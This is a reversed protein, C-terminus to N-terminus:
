LDEIAERSAASLKELPYEISKGNPMLFIVADDSKSLVAAKMQKGEANTWFQEEALLTSPPSDDSSSTTQGVVDLGELEKRLERVAKRTDTKLTNYSFGKLATNGDATTVM